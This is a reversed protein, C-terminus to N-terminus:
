KATNKIIESFIGNKGNEFVARVKYYYTKGEVAGTNTYTTGKTTFKKYFTGPKGSVSCYVEYKVADEITSWKLTPKGNTNNGKEPNLRVDICSNWVVNGFKGVSGDSMVARVKYYYTEYPTASIHTYTNGVTTFAKYFTGENGSKSRYVEYKVADVVDNWKLTPKGNDKNHGQVISPEAGNCTNKVVDSFAGLTGDKSVGRVKYYYSHGPEASINTYTNGTTVFSRFFTGTKGTISRYVEYKEASDINNWKLTPKGKDSHGTVLTIEKNLCKIEAVDSFVGKVSNNSVARVKYYYTEDAEATTNTYSLGTTEYQKYFTGAKGTTSRYVEYMEAGEVKSWKISPKGDIDRNTAAIEVPKGCRATAVYVESFVNDSGSISSKIKYYYTKGLEASIHTYTGGKTEFVKVFTGNKSTARYVEYNVGSKNEWSLTPLGDAERNKVTVESKISRALRKSLSDYTKGSAETRTGIAFKTKNIDVNDITYECEKTTGIEVWKGGNISRYIVYEDAAKAEDWNLIAMNGKYGINVNDPFDPHITYNVTTSGKYNGFWDNIDTYYGYKAATLKVTAEGVEKNNIYESYYDPYDTEGKKKLRTGDPAIATTSPTYAKGSYTYQNKSLTVNVDKMEVRVHGCTSCKWEGNQEVYAHGGADNYELRYQEGSESQYICYGDIICTSEVEKFISVKERIGKDNYFRIDEGETLWGKQITGNILYYENNNQDKVEGTYKEIIDGCRECNVKGTETDYIPVHCKSKITATDIIGNELDHMSIVLEKEDATATLYTANYDITPQVEFIKEYDFKDQTTIPYAKGGTSGVIYYVVGNENDVEDDTLPYTKALSHDHGSFVVDIGAEEVADPLINYVIDNGGVSNTFYPPQHTCLIKWTAKANKADDILWDVAQQMESASTAYNIVAIYINGRKISYCDGPGSHKNNYIASAISGTADANYEHNGFVNIMETDSLSDAGFAEGLAIWDEYEIPDDTADGTQIGFDYDEGNLNDMISYLNSKDESQIDGIIFFNNETKGTEDTTFTYEESLNGEPGVRYVYDTGPTLGSLEVGNVNVAKNGGKTFKVLKTDAEVTNWNDSGKVTYEVVQKESTIPNSFWSINHQTTSDKAANNRVEYAKGDETGQSLYSSISYRFSIMEDKKAYITYTAAANVFEDTELIGADNTTGISREASEGVVYIEAGEVPEGNSDEVKISTKESSGIVVDDAIINLPAEIPISREKTAFTGYINDLTLYSGSKVSYAFKDGEKLTSPINVKVTAILGDKLDADDKLNANITVTKTLKNNKTTGEYSDAFVIECSDYFDGLSISTTSEKIDKSDAAIELTVTKNLIAADEKLSVKVKSQANENGTNVTFYRTESTENGAKDKAVVTVSHVGETLELGNVMCTNGSIIYNYRDNDVVNVGDIQMRVAESDIGSMYKGDVDHFEATINVQSTLTEFDSSIEEDNLRISDIVPNETDDINTGYVFQLNDFYISNATKTGMKTGAVYMLRLTMGASISYPPEIKTLDAELYKWGEWSIGPQEEGNVVPEAKPELTFDYPVQTGSKDKVYGRLWFGAQSGDGEYEIGVGEPAYVWVGIATPTGPIDMAEKTGICAGETVEGCETFDYNLKLAKKGFRVPEDDDVSVIEISEKGGRGYNSHTLISNYYEEATEGEKDEFDWVITPLKGVIVKIQGSVGSDFVSTATVTGELSEGDSSTFLNGSFTGMKSNSVEWEFDGEKYIVENGKYRAKLGFDTTEEFGLSIEESSFLIEDPAQINIHTSGIIEKGLLMNVTVAGVSGNSKFLGSDSDIEGMSASDDGLAYKVGEPLDMAAGATDVGKATIQVETNPTYYENNPELIAKDFVGTPEANSVVLITSSVERQQGDSPTNRVQLTDTGAPRACYTASGGGDLALATVCGERQFMQAMEHYNRGCSIPNRFGYTTFLLVSGDERIGVATRSYDINGYDSSESSVEGNEVLLFSEGGVAMQLNDMDSSNSIIAKGDKTVGFYYRGNPGQIYKGDKVFAGLPQGTGMNFFDANIAAVVTKGPNDREYAKAQETTQALGWEESSNNAYGTVFEINENPNVECIYDIKQDDGNENNTIIEHEIVGNTIETITDNILIDGDPIGEWSKSSGVKNESRDNAFALSPFLSMIMACITFIAIFSRSKLKMM